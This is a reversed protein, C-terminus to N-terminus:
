THEQKNTDAQALYTLDTVTHQGEALVTLECM